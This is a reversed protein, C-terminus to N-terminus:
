GAPAARRAALAAELGARMADVPAPRGTWLEFSRVGQYLLMAAGDAVRCGRARAGRLFPTEGYIMDMVALGPPLLGPDVPMPDGAHLGLSTSQILCDTAALLGALTEVDDLRLWRVACAPALGALLRALAEAKAPTRNALVIGAAGGLAVHVATARAAGGSGLFLFRTGRVPLGFAEEVARALGYGDTSYGRLRGNRHVVTNASGAAAAGPDLDALLRALHEKHPVTANWGRYGERVLRELCGPLGEPPVEILEYSAEIGLARFGAEQMAPSLSHRVPWGLLAYREM